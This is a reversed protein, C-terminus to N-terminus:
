AGLTEVGEPEAAVNKSTGFLGKKRIYTELPNRCNGNANCYMPKEVAEAQNKSPNRQAIDKSVHNNFPNNDGFLEYSLIM